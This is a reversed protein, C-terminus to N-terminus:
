LGGEFLLLYLPHSSIKTIFINISYITTITEHHIDGFEDLQICLIHVAKQIDTM